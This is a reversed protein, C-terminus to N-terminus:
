RRAPAKPKQSEDYKIKWTMFGFFMALSKLANQNASKAVNEINTITEILKNGFNNDGWGKGRGIQYEIYATIERVCEAQGCYEILRKIQGYGLNGPMTNDALFKSAITLLQEKQIQNNM